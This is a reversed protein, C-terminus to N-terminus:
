YIPSFQRFLTGSSKITEPARFLTGSSNFLTGSIIDATLIVRLLEQFDPGGTRLNQVMLLPTLLLTDGLPKLSASCFDSTDGTLFELSELLASVLFPPRASLFPHATTIQSPRLSPWSSSPWLHPHHDHNEIFYHDPSRPLFRSITSTAAEKLDWATNRSIKILDKRLIKVTTM